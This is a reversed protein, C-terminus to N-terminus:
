RKGIDNIMKTLAGINVNIMLVDVLDVFNSSSASKCLFPPLFVLYNRQKMIIMM